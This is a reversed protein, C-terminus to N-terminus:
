IIHITRPNINKLGDRMRDNPQFLVRMKGTEGVFDVFYTDYESKGTVNIIKKITATNNYEREYNKDNICACIEATKFDVTIVRKRRSRGIIKDVDLENNTLAYEFEVYIIKGWLFCLYFVAFVLAFGVGPGFMATGFFFLLLSLVVALLIIGSLKLIDIIDIKKKVIYECFIDMM